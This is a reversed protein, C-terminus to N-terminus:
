IDDISEHWHPTYGRALVALITKPTLCSVLRDDFMAADKPKLYGSASWIVPQGNFKAVAGGEHAVFAGNPLQEWFIRTISKEGNSLREAHLVDDMQKATPRKKQRRVKRWVEAFHLFDQRRCEFCPRHGASLAVAEDLFFLETYGKGMVTRQLRNFETKCCIWQKSAWRRRSYLSQTEPDHIRGGRNGMFTGRAPDAVIDGSPFVRNQLAM